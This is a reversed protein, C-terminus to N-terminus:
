EKILSSHYIDFILGLTEQNVHRRTLSYLLENLHQAPIDTAHLTLYTLGLRIGILQNIRLFKSSELLDPNSSQVANARAFRFTLIGAFKGRSPKVDNNEMRRYAMISFDRIAENTADGVAKESYAITGQYESFQSLCLAKFAELYKEALLARTHSEWDERGFFKELFSEKM